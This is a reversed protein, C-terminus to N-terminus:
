RVMLLLLVMGVGIEVLARPDKGHEFDSVVKKNTFGVVIAVVGVVFLFITIALCVLHSLKNREDFMSRMRGFLTPSVELPQERDDLNHKDYPPM